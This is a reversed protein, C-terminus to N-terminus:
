ERREELVDTLTDPRDPRIVGVGLDLRRRMEDPDTIPWVGM